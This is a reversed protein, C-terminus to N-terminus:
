RPISKWIWTGDQTREAELPFREHRYWWAWAPKYSVDITMRATTVGTINVRACPLTMKHGPSLKDAFSDPNLFGINSVSQGRETRIDDARCAATVDRVTIVGDNSLYFVTGMAEQSRLSGSIDVSLKPLFSVVGALLSLVTCVGLFVELPIKWWKKTPPQLAPSRQSRRDRIYKPVKGKTM